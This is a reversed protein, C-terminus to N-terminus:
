LQFESSKEDDDEAAIKAITVPVPDDTKPSKTRNRKNYNTYGHWLKGIPPNGKIRPLFYAEKSQGPVNEEIFDAAALFQIKTM